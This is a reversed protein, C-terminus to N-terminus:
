DAMGVRTTADAAYLEAKRVVALDAREFRRDKALSILQRRIYRSSPHLRLNGVRDPRCGASVRKDQVPYSGNRGLNRIGLKLLAPNGTRNAAHRSLSTSFLNSSVRSAGNWYYTTWCFSLRRTRGAQKFLGSPRALHGGTAGSARQLETSCAYMRRSGAM